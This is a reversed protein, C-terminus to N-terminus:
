DYLTFTLFENFWTGVLIFVNILITEVVTRVTEMNKEQSYLQIEISHYLEIFKYTLNYLDRLLM